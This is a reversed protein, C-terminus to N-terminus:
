YAQSENMVLSSVPVASSLKILDDLGCRMFGTILASCTHTLYVTVALSLYLVTMRETYIQKLSSFVPWVVNYVIRLYPFPQCYLKM